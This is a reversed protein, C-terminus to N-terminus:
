ILPSGPINSVKPYAVSMLKRFLKIANGASLFKLIEIIMTIANTSDHVLMYVFNDEVIKM